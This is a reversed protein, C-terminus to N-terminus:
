PRQKRKRKPEDELGPLLQYESLKKKEANAMARVQDLLSRRYARSLGHIIRYTEHDVNICAYRHRNNASKSKKAAM